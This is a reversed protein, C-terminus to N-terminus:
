KMLIIRGCDYIRYWKQSLCFDHESINKPCNYKKILNKKNYKNKNERRHKVVYYFDPSTVGKIKFSQRFFEINDYRKDLVVYIDKIDYEKEIEDLFIRIYKYNLKEKFAFNSIVYENKNNKRCTIVGKLEDKNYFCYSISYNKFHQLTNTNIFNKIIDKDVNKKIIFNNDDEIKNIINQITNICAGSNNDWEDEYFHILKIGRKECILTKEIHYDNEKIIESHWYLGNFEVGINFDTLYFDIELPSIISRTHKKYNINNNILYEEFEREQKTNQFNYEIPHCKRCRNKITSDTLYGLTKTTFIEGCIKCKVLCNFRNKFELLELNDEECIKRYKPILVENILKINTEKRYKKMNESAIKRGKETKSFSDVGYKKICTERAKERSQIKQERTMLSFTKKIKESIKKGIEDKHILCYQKLCETSCTIKEVKKRVKFIKGCIPCTRNEWKEEHKGKKERRCGMGNLHLLPYQWFEGHEPCIICVKKRSEIYEVKSYDYKDGHIKKAEKIFTETDWKRRNCLPCKHGNLHNYPKQWFEGHEPCIICINTQANIYNVKSYDYKDGHVSKAKEIFEITTLKRM